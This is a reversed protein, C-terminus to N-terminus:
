DPFVEQISYEHVPRPILNLGRVIKQHTTPSGDARGHRIRSITKESLRALRALEANGLGEKAMVQDLKNTAVCGGRPFIGFLGGSDELIHILPSKDVM